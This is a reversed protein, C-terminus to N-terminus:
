MRVSVAFRHMKTPPKAFPIGYFAEYPGGDVGPQQVGRVWGYETRVTPQSHAVTQKIIVLAFALLVLLVSTAPMAFVHRLMETLIHPPQTHILAPVKCTSYAHM